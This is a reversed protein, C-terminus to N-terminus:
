LVFKLKFAMADEQHMFYYTATRFIGFKSAWERANDCCWDWYESCDKSVKVPIANDFNIM